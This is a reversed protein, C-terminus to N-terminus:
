SSNGSSQVAGSFCRTGRWRDTNMAERTVISLPTSLGENNSKWTRCSYGVGNDSLYLLLGIAPALFARWTWSHGLQALRFTARELRHPMRSTRDMTTHKLGYRQM